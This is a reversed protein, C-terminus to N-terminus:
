ITLLPQVPRDSRMAALIGGSMVCAPIPGPNVDHRAAVQNVCAGPKEPEAVIRLKDETSGSSATGRGTPIEVRGDSM